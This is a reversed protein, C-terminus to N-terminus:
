QANAVAFAGIMGGDAREAVLSQIAWTGLNDAIFGLTMQKGAAIVASDQWRGSLNDDIEQWVHGHIHIPQSFATRNDVELLITEGLTATFLPEAAPGSVGNLAWGKGNELLARLDREVGLFRASKLGGKIGGEIRLSVSRAATLDPLATVPNASLAFNDAIAPPKDQAESILYAIEVVDEFLDLAVRIDGEEPSVLLDARQGPALMLAKQDLPQPAVPQGDRAILLPDYGKFLLGMTRVNAVNLLRVRTFQGPVLALKPRYYNNVTFWNGLRGEGVMTEVDGFNGEITGGDGLKWDDLIIALDGLGPIPAAEEVILMAYLGMDRLLSQNAVPGIWFTGADPPTFVCDVAQDSGPPVNLTMLESPGRVGFFHLWIEQDLENIFRLKIEVGQKARMVAPEPGADFIWADTKGAGDELLGLLAKQATVKVFGDATTQALSLRPAAAVAAAASLFHRRTFAM